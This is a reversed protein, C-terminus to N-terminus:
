LTNNFYVLSNSPVSPLYGLSGICISKTTPARGTDSGVWQPWIEQSKEIEKKGAFFLVTGILLPTVLLPSVIVGLIVRKDRLTERIEKLFVTSTLSPRSM